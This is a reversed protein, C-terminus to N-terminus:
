WRRHFPLPDLPDFGFDFPTVANKAASGVLYSGPVWGSPGGDLQHIHCWRARWTCQDLTVRENKMLKDITPYVDGPGTHVALLGSARATDAAFAPSATLAALVAAALVLGSKPMALRAVHGAGTYRRGTRPVLSAQTLKRSM